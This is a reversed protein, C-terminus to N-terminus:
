DDQSAEDLINRAMRIHVSDILKGELKLAGRNNKISENYANIVNKAWEIENKSPSFVQNAIKVQSPHIVQKGAYGLNKSTIAEEKFGNADQLDFYVKDIPAIGNSRAAVAVATSIYDNKTYGSINGGLSFSLDAAAWSVMIVGDESVIDNIDKIGRATEILPILPIGLLRYIQGIGPESKPIVIYDLKVNSKYISYIDKYFYPTQMSNIRIAVKKTTKQHQLFDLIYDRALDKNNEPVADELDFIIIDEDLQLSNLVFKENNAPVYLQTRTKAM